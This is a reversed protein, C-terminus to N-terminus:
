DFCPQFLPNKYAEFCMRIQGKTTRDLSLPPLHDLDFFGRRSTEINEQFPESAETLTCLVFIKYIGYAIVPTNHRSRDLVAILRGPTVTLGTEERVEKVVNERVSLSVDAWGGPLSWRGDSNELVMLIEDGQFVAARVDVKPTPYGKEGCFVDQVTDLDMGSHASLIEASLERIRSFRERDFDDKSYTLGAQGISQLEMAWALWQPTM